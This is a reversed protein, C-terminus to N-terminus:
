TWRGTGFTADEGLLRERLELRRVKGTSTRPIDNWDLRRPEALAPLDSTAQKWAVEDWAGDRTCVVPLPLQGPVGIIVAEQLEPLRDALVDELEICSMGPIVDVERDLLSFAGTRSVVAWDGTNWWAGQTKSAWRDAEGLYSICRGNTRALVVGPTGAPVEEMTVPDVVKMGTFGPIPRGVVRTTPHRTGQEDLARKTLLRFTMPGTESQGWGQLWSPFPRKSAHLFRRITPPHMADFTSVFLRVESFVNDPRELLEEWGIYTAPLTELYTPRYRSFMRQATAPEADALILARKPELRLMGTSWTIMRMHNFAVSTAVTDRRKMGVIPWPISETRGLHGMITDATHVVLKPVGTTGSTHTAVMPEYSATEVAPPIRNGRLDDMTLAGPFPRDISVVTEALTILDAGSESATRLIEETTVLVRADARKLVTQLTDAPLGGAVLVPLAGIRAAACALILYDWHSPKAIAVRDGARAGAAHIWASAEEVLGALDQVGLDTGLDPAFDFPRSLHIRTKHGRSAYHAFLTGLGTPGGKGSM